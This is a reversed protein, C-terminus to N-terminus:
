QGKVVINIKRKQRCYTEKSIGLYSAMIKDPVYILYEPKNKKLWIIKEQNNLTNFAAIRQMSQMYKEELIKTYAEAFKPVQTILVNFSDISLKYLVTARIAKASLQAPTRNKFSDLDSFWTDKILIDVTKEEGNSSTDALQVVGSEVFYIYNCLEGESFIYQNRKLKLRVFCALVDDLNEPNQGIIKIINSKLVEM